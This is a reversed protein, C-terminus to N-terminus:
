GLELAGPVEGLAEALASFKAKLAARDKKSVIEFSKWGTGDRYPALADDAQTFATDLRKALRPDAKTIAPMLLDTAKKAGEVNAALDWLDTHSYRDEEGTIKGDAVEEILESAGKAVALPTIKLDGIDSQLGALEKDLGDALKKSGSVSNKVWLDYELQHWGTVKPSETDAVGDEARSDVAGDVNSVLAAIPEIREWAQRSTPYAAKAAPIDGARVADTFVKTDTVLQAVQAEVFTQYGAVAKKVLPNSSTGAVDDKTIGTGSKCEASTSSGGAASSGGATSSASNGCDRTAAGDDKACGAMILGAALGVAALRHGITATTPTTPDTSHRM